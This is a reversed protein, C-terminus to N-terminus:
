YTFNKNECTIARWANAVNGGNSIKNVGWEAFIQYDTKDNSINTPNNGTGWGFLDIWGGYASFILKNDSNSVTGGVYCDQGEDTLRYGIGVIDYQHEAFRWTDTSAQYQLNGQSFRVEKTDSVSFVGSLAGELKSNM